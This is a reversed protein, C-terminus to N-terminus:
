NVCVGLAAVKRKLRNRQRAAAARDVDLEASHPLSEQGSMYIYLRIDTNFHTTLPKRSTSDTLSPRHAIISATAAIVAGFFFLSHDVCLSSRGTFSTIKPQNQHPLQPILPTEQM